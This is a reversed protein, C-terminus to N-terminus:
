VKFQKNQMKIRMPLVNNELQTTHSKDRLLSRLIKIRSAALPVPGLQIVRKVDKYLVKSFYPDLDYVPWHIM